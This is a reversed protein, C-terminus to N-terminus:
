KYKFVYVHERVEKLLWFIECMLTDFAPLMACVSFSNVSAYDPLELSFMENEVDGCWMNRERAEQSPTEMMRPQLQDELVKGVMWPETKCVTISSILLHRIQIWFWRVEPNM